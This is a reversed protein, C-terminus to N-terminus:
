RKEGYIGSYFSLIYIMTTKRKEEKGGMSSSCRTVARVRFIAQPQYIITFVEESSKGANEIIDKELNDIIENNEV